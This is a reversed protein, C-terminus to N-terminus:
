AATRSLRERAPEYKDRLRQQEEPPLQALRDALKVTRAIPNAAVREIFTAYNEGDRKTLAEIAAVVAEDLGRERLDDATVGTDEVVDHLVAALREHDTRLRLAVRLPHLIYPEDGKDRQGRHRDAALIIADELTM